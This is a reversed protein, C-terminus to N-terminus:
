MLSAGMSEKSLATMHHGFQAPFVSGGELLVIPLNCSIFNIFAQFLWWLTRAQDGELRSGSHGSVGM